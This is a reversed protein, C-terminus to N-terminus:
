EKIVLFKLSHSYLGPVGQHLNHPASGNTSIENPSGNKTKKGACTVGLGRFQDRFRKRLGAFAEDLEPADFRGFFDGSLKWGWSVDNVQRLALRREEVQRLLRPRLGVERRQSKQIGLCQKAEGIELSKRNLPLKSTENSYRSHCIEIQGTCQKTM